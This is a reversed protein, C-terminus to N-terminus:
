ASGIMSLLRRAIFTALCGVVPGAIAFPYWANLNDAASGTAAAACFVLSSALFGLLGTALYSAALPALFRATSSPIM